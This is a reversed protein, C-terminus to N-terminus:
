LVEDIEQGYLNIIYDKIYDNCLVFDFYEEGYTDIAEQYTIGDKESVESVLSNRDDDSVVFGENSALESVIIYNAYESLLAEKYEDENMDFYEKLYDEYSLNMISANARQNTIINNVFDNSKEPLAVVFSNSLIFDLAAEYFRNAVIERKIIKKVEESNKANFFKIAVEDNLGDKITEDDVDLSNLNMEIAIQLDEDSVSYESCDINLHKYDCLNINASTSQNHNCGCLISCILLVIMGLYCIRKM